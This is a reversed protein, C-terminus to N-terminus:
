RRSPAPSGRMPTSAAMFGSARRASMRTASRHSSCRRGMWRTGATACEIMWPERPQLGERHAIVIVAGEQGAGPQAYRTRLGTRELAEAARDLVQDVDGPLRGAEAIGVPRRAM